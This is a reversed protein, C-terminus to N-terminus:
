ILCVLLDTDQKVQSPVAQGISQWALVIGVSLTVPVLAITCCREADPTASSATIVLQGTSTDDMPNSLQDCNTVAPQISWVSKVGPSMSSHFRIMPKPTLKPTLGHTVSFRLDNKM